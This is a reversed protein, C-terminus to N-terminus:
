GGSHPRVIEIADGPNLNTTAWAARPVIADNIAIAVGRRSAEIAQEALLDMLSAGALHHPQGNVIIDM